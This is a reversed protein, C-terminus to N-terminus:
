NEKRRKSNHIISWKHVLKQTSMCRWPTGSSPGVHSGCKLKRFSGHRERLHSCWQVAWAMICTLTGTERRRQMYPNWNGKEKALLTRTLGKYEPWELSHSTPGGKHNEHANEKVAEISPMKGHAWQSSTYRRELIRQGRKFIHKKTASNFSNKKYMGSWFHRIPYM